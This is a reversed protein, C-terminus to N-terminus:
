CFLFLNRWHNTYPSIISAQKPMRNKTNPEIVGDTEEPAALESCPESPGYDGSDASLGSVTSEPCQSHNKTVKQGLKYIRQLGFSIKCIVVRM